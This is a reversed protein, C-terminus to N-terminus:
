PSGPPCRWCNGRCALVGISIGVCGCLISVDVDRDSLQSGCAELCNRSEDYNCCLVDFVRYLPITSNKDRKKKPGALGTPAETAGLYTTDAM